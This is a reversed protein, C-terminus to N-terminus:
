YIKINHSKSYYRSLTPINANLVGELWADSTLPGNVMNDWLEATSCGPKLTRHIEAFGRQRDPFFMLGFLSVATDFTEDAYPQTQANAVLNWPESASLPNQSASPKLAPQESAYYM